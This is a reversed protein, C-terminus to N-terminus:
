PRWEGAIKRVAAQGHGALAEWDVRAIVVGPNLRFGVTKQTEVIEFEAPLLEKLAARIRTTAKDNRAMGLKAASTWAEPDRLHAAVMHLFVVFLMDQLSGRTDNVLVDTRAAGRKGDIAVRVVSGPTMREPSAALVAACCSHDVREARALAARIKDLILDARDDFPKAIFGNADMDYMKSVFDPHRSYSTVVLIPLVHKGAKTREPAARRIVELATEGCGVVARSHADAPIQMDLLVYCYGGAAVAARVEELTAEHIWDHGLSGVFEKLIVAIQPDDEVILAVHRKRM